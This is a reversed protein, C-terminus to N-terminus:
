VGRVKMGIASNWCYLFTTTQTYVNLVTMYDMLDILVLLGRAESMGTTKTMRTPM